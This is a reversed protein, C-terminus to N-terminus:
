APEKAAVLDSVTVFEYGLGALDGLIRRTADLTRQRRDGGDHMLVIDGPRVRRVVERVIRGTSFPMTDGSDISWLVSRLGLESCIRAEDKPQKGFPPRYLLPPDAVQAIARMALAIEASAEGKAVDRLNRHSYSHNALEHGGAAIRLGLERNQELRSGVVFFTARAGAAELIELLEATNAPSPGDDYTLAVLPRELPVARVAGDSLGREAAHRVRRQNIRFALGSRKLM